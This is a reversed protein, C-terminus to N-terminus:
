PGSVDFTASARHGTIAHEAHVTYRGPVESFSIPLVHAFVRGTFVLNTRFCEIEDGNPDTVRVHVAQGLQETDSKPSSAFLVTGHVTVDQGHPVRASQAEITMQVPNAPLLAFYQPRMDLRLSVTDTHGWYSRSRVDWVHYKGGFRATTAEREKGEGTSARLLGVLTTSGNRFVPMLTDRRPLGRDDLLVVPPTVGAYEKLLLAVDEAGTYDCQEFRGLYGNFSDPLYAAHGKGIRAVHKKDFVPFLNRLRPSGLERGHESYIGPTNDAIVLGGQAVFARIADAEALSMGKSYPLMLARFGRKRLGDGRLDEPSVITPRIRLSKLLTLCDAPAGGTVSRNYLWTGSFGNKQFPHLRSIYHNYPAWLIAVKSRYPKSTITLKGIGRQLFRVERSYNTFYPLPESLCPTLPLEGGLTQAGGREWDFGNLGLFLVKWPWRENNIPTQHDYTWRIMSQAALLFSNDGSFSQLLEPVMCERWETNVVQGIYLKSCTMHKRYRSFDHHDHGCRGTRAEPVFRRVMDTWDIFFQSWIRSRMFYRFDVWRPLQDREVADHLLIGRVGDWSKLESGWEANLAFLDGRYQERCWEQFKRTCLPSFGSYEMSKPEGLLYEEGTLVYFPTGFKASVQYSPIRRNIYDAGLSWAGQPLAYPFQKPDLLQGTDAIHRCMRSVEALCSTTDEKSPDLDKRHREAEGTHQAYSVSQFHTRANAEYQDLYNHILMTFAANIGYQRMVEGYLDGRWDGFGPMPAFILMWVYDDFTWNPLGIWRGTADIVGQEDRLACHVDWLRCLPQRVPLAFTGGTRDANLVVATRAVTRGWTDLAWADVEQGDAVPQSFACTGEITEGPRYAEKDTGLAAMRARTEVRFCKSGFNLARDRHDFLHADLVYTGRPLIPIGVECERGPRVLMSGERITTGRRDRIRHRISMKATTAQAELSVLATAEPLDRRAVVTKSAKPKWSARAIEADVPTRLDTAPARLSIGISVAPEKASAWLICRALVAFAYDYMLRDRGRAPHQIKPVYPSLSNGGRPSDAADFYHLGMVRGKGHGNATICVSAQAYGWRTVGPIPKYDSPAALRHLPMIDFPLSRFIRDGVEPESCSLFLREFEPDPEAVEQRSRRGRKLRNPSVYVLGAGREVHELVLRRVYDPMVVWSVKGIVIADYRHGLSLRQRSLEELVTEAEVGKLPTATPGEFYGHAWCSHGAVMIVTYRLDLRQATEVVERSNRYPLIFLVNLKGGACPKAWKVHYTELTGPLRDYPQNPDGYPPTALAKPTLFLALLLAFRRSTLM